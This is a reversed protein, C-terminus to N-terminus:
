KIKGKIKKVYFIFALVGTAISVLTAVMTLVTQVDAWSLLAMLASTQTAVKAQVEGTIM